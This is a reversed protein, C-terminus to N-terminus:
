TTMMFIVMGGRSEENVLYIVHLFSMRYVM